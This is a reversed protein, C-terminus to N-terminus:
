VFAEPRQSVGNEESGELNTREFKIMSDNLRWASTHSSDFLRISHPCMTINSHFVVGLSCVFTTELYCFSGVDAPKYTENGGLKRLIESVMQLARTVWTDWSNEGFALECAPFADCVCDVGFAAEDDALEPM